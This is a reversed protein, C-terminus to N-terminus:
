PHNLGQLFAKTHAGRITPMWSILQLAFRKFARPVVHVSPNVLEIAVASRGITEMRQLSDELTMPHHHFAKANPNYFLSVGADALRKGWEVDEWGYLTVDERFPYQLALERPLSIHSTYTFFHQRARPVIGPQLKHFGFQWGSQELWKMVPTITISPDWTTHGLVALPNSNPSGGVGLSRLVPLSQSHVDLHKQCADPNLFIDDGIFMVIEGTALTVGKNRAVGQHSKHVESYVVHMPWSSQVIKQTDKDDIGDSVVIVELEGLATQNAIRALTERLIQPRHLTPIVVSLGPM